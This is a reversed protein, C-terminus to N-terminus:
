LSCLASLCGKIRHAAGSIVIHESHVLHSLSHFCYFFHAIPVNFFNSLIKRNQRLCHVALRQHIQVVAADDCTGCTTISRPDFYRCSSCEFM